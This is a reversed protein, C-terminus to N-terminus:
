VARCLTNSILESGNRREARFRAVHGLPQHARRHGRNQRRGGLGRHRRRRAGGAIGFEALADISRRSSRACTLWWTASGNECISFPIASSRAPATIPSTAAAIPTSLFVIGARECFRRSRWCTRCTGNRGLTIVHPHEVILLSIPFRAASAARRGPGETDRYAEAYGIRGLDRVECILCQHGPRLGRQVGRGHSRLPHPPRPHHQM